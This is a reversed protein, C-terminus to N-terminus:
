NLDAAPTMPLLRYAQPFWAFRDTLWVAGDFSLGSTQGPLAYKWAVWARGPHLQAALRRYGGPFERGRENWAVLDETTAARVWLQTQGPRAVLPPPNNWLAQYHARASSVLSPAFVREFDDERPRLALLLEFRRAEPLTQDLFAGFTRIAMAHVLNALSDMPKRRVVKQTKALLEEARDGIVTM